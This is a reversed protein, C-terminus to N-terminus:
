PNDPNKLSFLPFFSPRAPIVYYFRDGTSNDIVFDLTNYDNVSGDQQKTEWIDMLSKGTGWFGCKKPTEQSKEPNM